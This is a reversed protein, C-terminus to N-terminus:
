KQWLKEYLDAVKEWTQKKAWQYAKEILEKEKQPQQLHEKVKELLEDASGVIIMKDAMPSMKLYDEKLPNDYVAFVLRKRAMAELISLYGSTFIFRSRDIYPRVDKVSSLFIIKLKEAAKLYIPLGTDEELRGIFTILEPM